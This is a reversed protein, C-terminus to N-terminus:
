LIRKIVSFDRGASRISCQDGLLSSLHHVLISPLLLLRQETIEYLTALIGAARWSGWSAQNSFLLNRAQKM